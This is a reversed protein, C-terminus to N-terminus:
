HTGKWYCVVHEVTEEEQCFRCLGSQYKGMLHPLTKNLKAGGEYKRRIGENKGSGVPYWTFTQRNKRQGLDEEM